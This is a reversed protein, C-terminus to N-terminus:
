MKCLQKQTIKGLFGEAILKAATQEDIGRSLAYFLQEEDPRTISASHSANAENTRIDLAPLANIKADPSMLLAHQGLKASSNKATKAININGDFVAQSKDHLIGKIQMNAESNGSLINTISKINAKQKKKGIFVIEEKLSANQGKLVAEIELASNEGNAIGAFIECRSGRELFIKIKANSTKIKPSNQIYIISSTSFPKQIIEIVANKETAYITPIKVFDNKGVSIKLIRTKM